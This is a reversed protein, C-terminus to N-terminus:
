HKSSTDHCNEGNESALDAPSRQGIFDAQSSFLAGIAQEAPIGLQVFQLASNPKEPMHGICFWTGRMCVNAAKGCGPVSCTM